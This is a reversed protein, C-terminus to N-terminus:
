RELLNNIRETLKEFDIYTFMIGPNDRFMKSMEMSHYAETVPYNEETKIESNEWYTFMSVSDQAGETLFVRANLIPGTQIMRRIKM